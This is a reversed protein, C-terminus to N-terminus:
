KPPPPCPVALYANQPIQCIGNLGLTERDSADLAALAHGMAQRVAEADIDRTCIYPLAPTPATQDIVCLDDAFRDWKRIMQWTLADIAAFDAEGLAVARASAVHAGTAIRPGISLGAGTMHAHLAAWGSQSLADNYAARAGDFRDLATDAHDKHAIIVSYYYGPPCNLNLVPSAVLKVKDALQARYPFGCTQSLRLQPSTWHAMLDPIDRTLRAPAALPLQTRILQWFRDNAGSTEPRDYMPLSAIM